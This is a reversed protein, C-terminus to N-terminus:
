LDEQMNSSHLVFGLYSVAHMVCVFSVFPFICLMALVDHTQQLM